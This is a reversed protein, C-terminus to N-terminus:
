EDGDEGIDYSEPDENLQRGNTISAVRDRWDKVRAQQARVKTDWEDIVSIVTSAKIERDELKTMFQKLKQTITGTASRMTRNVHNKGETILAADGTSFKKKKGSIADKLKEVPLNFKLAAQAVNMNGSAIAELAERTNRKSLYSRAVHTYSRLMGIPMFHLARKIDADKAGSEIMRIITHEIDVKTPPKAGGYNAELAIGYLKIVDSEEALVCDIVTQDMILKAQARHRGDVYCYEGDILAVQIPPVESGAEYLEVFRLINDDDLAKRVDFRNHIKAIELSFVKRQKSM